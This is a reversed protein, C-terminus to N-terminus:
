GLVRLPEQRREAADRRVKPGTPVRQRRGVVSLDHGVAERDPVLDGPRRGAGGGSDAVPVPREALVSACCAFSLGSDGLGGILKVTGALANAVGVSTVDAACASVSIQGWAPIDAAASVGAGAARVGGPDVDLHDTSAM